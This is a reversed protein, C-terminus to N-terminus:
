HVGMKQKLYPYPIDEPANGGLCHLVVRLSSQALAWIDIPRWSCGGTDLEAM